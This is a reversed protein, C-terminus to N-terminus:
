EIRPRLFVGPYAGSTKFRLETMTRPADVRPICFRDSASGVRNNDGDGVALRWGSSSVVERTETCWRGYPFSFHGPKLGLERRLDEACGSVEARAVSGRYTSLDVHERTHGGIEILPFKQRLTRVEDWTLTLRPATGQPVLQRRVEALLASRESYDAEMLRRHLVQRALAVERELGLDLEGRDEGPIRLRDGTRRQILWHLADAWQSEGRKVYGTALFLTAPLHYRALIPAAITLNDLYGDDFTICVTGAPPSRGADIDDAVQSLPVVRRHKSLFAMQREFMVPELRNPPDVSEAIETPAVSHYMLVIAGSPRTLWEFLRGGGSWYVAAGAVARRASWVRRLLSAALPSSVKVSAPM